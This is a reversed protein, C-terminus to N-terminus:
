TRRSTDPSRHQVGTGESHAHGREARGWPWVGMSRARWTWLGRSTWISSWTLCSLIRELERQTRMSLLYLTLRPCVEDGCCWWWLGQM